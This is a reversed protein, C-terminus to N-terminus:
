GASARARRGSVQAQCEVVTGELSGEHLPFGAHPCLNDMAYIREGVRYLGVERGDVRVCLGRDTPIDPLSAVREFSM